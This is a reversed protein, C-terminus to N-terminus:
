LFRFSGVFVTDHMHKAIDVKHSNGSQWAVSDNMSCQVASRNRTPDLTWGIKILLQDLSIGSKTRANDVSESNPDQAM